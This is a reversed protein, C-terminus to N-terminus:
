RCHGVNVKMEAMLWKATWLWPRDTSCPLPNSWLPILERDAGYFSTVRLTRPASNSSCVFQSENRWPLHCALHKSPTKRSRHSDRGATWHLYRLGGLDVTLYPWHYIMTRGTLVATVSLCWASPLGSLPPCLAVGWFPQLISSRSPRM